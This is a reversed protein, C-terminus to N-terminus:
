TAAMGIVGTRRITIWRISGELIMEVVTAVVAIAMEALEQDQAAAVAVEVEVNGVVKRGGGLFM